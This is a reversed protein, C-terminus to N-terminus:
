VRAQRQVSPVWYSTCTDYECRWLLWFCGLPELAIQDVRQGLLLQAHAVGAKQIALRKELMGTGPLHQFARREVNRKSPVRQTQDLHQILAELEIHKQLVVIHNELLVRPTDTLSLSCHYRGRLLLQYL